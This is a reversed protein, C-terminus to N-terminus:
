DDEQEIYDWGEDDMNGAYDPTDHLIDVILHDCEWGTEDFADSIDEASLSSQIIVMGNYPSIWSYIEDQEKLFSYVSSRSVSSSDYSFIYSYVAM